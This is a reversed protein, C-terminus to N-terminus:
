IMESCTSLSHLYQMYMYSLCMRMYVCVCVCVCVCLWTMVHKWRQIHEFLIKTDNVGEGVHHSNVSSRHSFHVVALFQLFLASNIHPRQLKNLQNIPKFSIQLTKTIHVHIYIPSPYFQHHIPETHCLYLFQM